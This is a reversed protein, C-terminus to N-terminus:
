RSRAEEITKVVEALLEVSSAAAVSDGFLDFPNGKCDTVHGGAERIILTGILIHIVIFWVQLEHRSYRRCLGLAEM